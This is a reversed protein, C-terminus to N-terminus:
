QSSDLQRSVRAQIERIFREESFAQAHEVIVNEDFSLESLENIADRIHSARPEECFLGTQYPIVTDLYGGARYAITPKGWAAAEIVTLGFDEYSPAILATCHAYAWRLQADSVDSFLACNEPLQEVLESRLPGNGIIVLKELPLMRFADIVENVNKYPLLRSVVLFFGDDVSFEAPLDLSRQPSHTDVSQPPFVLEAEIGYVKKIRQQVVTSNALYVAARHAARYDWKKFLPEAVRLAKKVLGASKMSGLYEDPLYLFRAPSHCYVIVDGRSTIGHAWATTSALVVDADISLSATAWPFFPLGIRHNRRIFGVRNLWSTVINKSQFEPFTGDPEYLTTYIVADPFANSLALVVREAGGRQTLYDHAIAIVPKRAPKM